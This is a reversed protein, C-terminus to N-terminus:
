FNLVAKWTSFLTYFLSNKLYVIFVTCGELDLQHIVLAYPALLFLLLFLGEVGLLQFGQVNSPKVWYFLNM